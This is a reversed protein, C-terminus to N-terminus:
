LAQNQISNQNSSSSSSNDLTGLQVRGAHNQQRQQNSSQANNRNISESRHRSQSTAATSNNVTTRNKNSNGASDVKKGSQKGQGNKASNSTFSKKIDAIDKSISQLLQTQKDLNANEGNLFGESDHQLNAM